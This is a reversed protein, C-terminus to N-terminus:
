MQRLRIEGGKRPLCFSTIDTSSSIFEWNLLQLISNKYNIVTLRKLASVRGDRSGRATSPMLDSSVVPKDDLDSVTHCSRYSMSLKRRQLANLEVRGTSLLSSIPMIGTRLSSKM